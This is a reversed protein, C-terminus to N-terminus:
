EPGAAPTSAGYLPVRKQDQGNQLVVESRSLRAIRWPAEFVDGAKLLRSGSGEGGPDTMLIALGEGERNVIARVQRRFVLGVDPPPPPPATRFHIIRPHVVPSVTPAVPAGVGALYDRLDDAAAATAENPRDLLQTPAAHAYRTLTLPQPPLGPASWGALLALSLAAAACVCAFVTAAPNM